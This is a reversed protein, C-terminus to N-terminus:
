SISARVPLIRLASFSLSILKESMNQGIVDTEYDFIFGSAIAVAVLAILFVMGFIAGKNQLLRRWTEQAMSRSKYKKKLNDAM